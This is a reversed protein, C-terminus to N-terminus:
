KKKATLRNALVDIFVIPLNTQTLTVNPDDPKYNDARQAFAVNTCVLACVTLLLKRKM